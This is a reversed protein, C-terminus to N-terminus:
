LKAFEPEDAVVDFAPYAVQDLLEDCSLDATPDSLEPLSPRRPPGAQPKPLVERIVRHLAAPPPSKLSTCLVLM